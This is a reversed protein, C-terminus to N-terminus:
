EAPGPAAEGPDAGGPPRGERREAAADTDYGHESDWRQPAPQAYAGDDTAVCLLDYANGDMGLAEAEEPRAHEVV